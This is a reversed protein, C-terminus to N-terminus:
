LFLMVSGKCEVDEPIGDPLQWTAEFTSIMTCIRYWRTKGTEWFIGANCEYEAIAFIDYGLITVKALSDAPPATNCSVASIIRIIIFFLEGSKLM